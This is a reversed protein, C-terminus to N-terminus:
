DQILNGEAPLSDESQQASMMLIDPEDPVTLQGDNPRRRGNYVRRLNLQQSDKQDSSGPELISKILMFIKKLTDNRTLRTGFSMDEEFAPLEETLKLVKEVPTQNEDHSDQAELALPNVRREIIAHQKTMTLPAIDPIEMSSSSSSAQEHESSVHSLISRLAIGGGSEGMKRNSKSRKPVMTSELVSFAKAMPVISKCRQVNNISM